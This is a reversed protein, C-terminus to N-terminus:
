TMRSESAAYEAMEKQAELRKERIFDDVTFDAWAPNERLTRRASELQQQPTIIEITDEMQRITLVDGKNVSFAKRIASPITIRGSQHVEVHYDM